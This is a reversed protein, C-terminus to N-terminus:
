GGSGAEELDSEPEQESPVRWEECMEDRKACEHM